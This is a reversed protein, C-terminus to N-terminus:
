ISCRKNFMYEIKNALRSGCFVLFTYIGTKVVLIIVMDAFDAIIGSSPKVVTGYHKREDKM